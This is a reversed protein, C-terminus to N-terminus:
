VKEWSLVVRSDEIPVVTVACTASNKSWIPEAFSQSINAVIGNSVLLVDSEAYEGPSGDKRHRSTFVVRYWGPQVVDQIHTGTAPNITLEVRPQMGMGCRELKPLDYQELTERIFRGRGTVYNPMLRGVEESDEMSKAGVLYVYKDSTAFDLVCGRRGAEELAASFKEEYWGRRHEDMELLKLGNKTAM